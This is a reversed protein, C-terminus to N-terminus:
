TATLLNCMRVALKYADRSNDTESLHEYVDLITINSNQIHMVIYPREFLITYRLVVDNDFINDIVAIEEGSSDKYYTLGRYHFVSKSGMNDNEIIIKKCSAFIEHNLMFLPTFPLYPM